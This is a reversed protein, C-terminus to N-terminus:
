YRNGVMRLGIVDHGDAELPEAFQMLGDREIFTRELEIGVVVLDVEVEAEDGPTQPHVGSGLAQEADVDVARRMPGLTVVVEAPTKRSRFM